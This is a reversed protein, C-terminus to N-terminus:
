PPLHAQEDADADLFKLSSRLDSALILKSYTGVSGDSASVRVEGAKADRLVSTVTTSTRVQNSSLAPPQHRHQRYQSTNYQSTIRVSLVRHNYCKLTIVHMRITQKGVRLVLLATCM